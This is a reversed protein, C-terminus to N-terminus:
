SSILWSPTQKRIAQFLDSCASLWQGATLCHWNPCLNCGTKRSMGTVLCFVVYGAACSGACIDRFRCFFCVMGHLSLKTLQSGDDTSSSMATGCVWLAGMLCGWPSCLWAVVKSLNIHQSIFPLSILHIINYRKKTVGLFYKFKEHSKGHLPWLMMRSPSPLSFLFFFTKEKSLQLTEPIWKALCFLWNLEAMSSQSSNRETCVYHKSVVFMMIIAYLM